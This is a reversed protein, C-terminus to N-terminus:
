WLLLYVNNHHINVCGSDVALTRLSSRSECYNVCRRCSLLRILKMQVECFGLRAGVSFYENVKLGLQLTVHGKETLVM